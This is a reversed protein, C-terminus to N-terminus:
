DPELALARGVSSPETVHVANLGAARAGEVNEMTDDFFLMSKLAVGTKAAVADFASREPKRQGLTSSVFVDTFLNITESYTTRWFVEHTPNSNTLVYVPVKSKLRPIINVLDKIEEVFVANWGQVFVEDDGKFEVISRLYTFYQAASLQGREHQGYAADMQFRNGIEEASLPSHKAWLQFVRNWDLEIIVGGLDFLLAEIGPPLYM